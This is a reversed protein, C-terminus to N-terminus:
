SVYRSLEPLLREAHEELTAWELRRLYNLVQRWRMDELRRFGEGIREKGGGLLIALAERTPTDRDDVILGGEGKELYRQM